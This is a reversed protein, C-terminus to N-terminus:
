VPISISLCPPFARNYLTLVLLVLLGEDCFPLSTFNLQTEAPSSIFFDVRIMEDRNVGGNNM